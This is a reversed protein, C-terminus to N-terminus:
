ASDAALVGTELVPHGREILHGGAKISDREPVPIPRRALRNGEVM